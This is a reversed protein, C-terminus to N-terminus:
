IPQQRLFLGSQCLFSHLFTTIGPTCTLCVLLRKGLWRLGRKNFCVRQLKTQCQLNAGSVRTCFSEKSM